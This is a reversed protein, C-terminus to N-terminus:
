TFDWGEQSGTWSARLAPDPGEVTEFSFGLGTRRGAADDLEQLEATRRITQGDRELTLM